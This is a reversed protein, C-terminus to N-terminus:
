ASRALPVALRALAEKTSLIRAGRARFDDLVERAKAPDLSRLADTVLTVRRGRRLLGEVARRVCHETVVGFIVFEVDADFSPRGRPHLRHLLAETNPNDFVDLTNKELVIQQFSGLDEPFNFGKQNPVVLQTSARAEDILEAGPAGKLCHHPWERLEPDDPRHADASSILLVRGRRAADVLRRINAVINEAGPVYLKGEPSMFDRQVDVGWFIVSPSVRPKATGATKAAATEVFIRRLEDSLQELRDSYSVPFPPDAEGLALLRSPLRRQAALFRSRASKAAAVPDQAAVKLRRGEQMVQHLLPESGPFVEDELAIVDHAFTGDESSFRFVQKRGPYTKKEVSFKATSRIHNAFQVEVLKYIVGISPSDASTSLATGVGFSNVCGGGRLLAEIRDETLDGSVFINVDNWGVGDLRQRAWVSDALVDGSDLRIGKPKRGLAIIKEVAARVDYTDVLLTAHEPFVDLFNSFAAGEDDHAMIWSHAQTGYIPIGFRYGAYTNSTGECGGVFAARAALVGAEIGHARRTGFEIVPRGEAATTVRAAKSAILTQLHIVSLLSTEVLQAEAIPATVRLIPEGSFFITGEPLAWVDGTFRFSKLYDFFEPGVHRFLPLARLYSIEPEPFRVNELFDLAHELGAAVLYNRHPPLNRVFLEFTARAAFRNQVYGAAMTLEYLDTLLGSCTGHAINALGPMTETVEYPGTRDVNGGRRM